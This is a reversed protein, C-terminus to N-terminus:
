YDYYYTNDNYCVSEMDRMLEDAAADWDIHTYPWDNMSVMRPATSEARERAYQPMDGEHVLKIDSNWRPIENRLNNLNSLAEGESEPKAWDLVDDEDRLWPEDGVFEMLLVDDHIGLFGALEKVAAIKTEDDDDDGATEIDEILSYLQSELSERETELEGTTLSDNKM